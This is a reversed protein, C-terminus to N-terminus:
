SRFNLEFPKKTFLYYRKLLVEDQSHKNTENASIKKLFQLM